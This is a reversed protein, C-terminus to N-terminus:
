GTGPLDCRTPRTYLGGAGQMSCGVGQGSEGRPRSRVRWASRDPRAESVIKADRDAPGTGSEARLGGGGGRGDWGMLPRCSSGSYPADSICVKM